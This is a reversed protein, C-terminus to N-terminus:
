KIVFYSKGVNKLAKHTLIIRKIPQNDWKTQFSKYEMGEVSPLDISIDWLNKDYNIAYKKGSVTKLNVMGATKTDVECTTMFIQQLSKAEKLHYVDEIEVQNQAQNLKVTRNWSNVNAEAPYAKAINMKLSNEAGAVETAEFSRGANQVIGNIIPLNHYDSRTFWLEYRQPSFTRATYNGRGADIIVPEGNAYVIFDGVDNHNHSEANHGGHTALYLGQKTRTTVVQIDSIYAGNPQYDNNYKPISNTTLLNEMARMVHRYTFGVEKSFTHNAWLGFKVMTEDNIAKGFRYLMLGDPKSIRPDADAFNVFYRDAIHMKYIYSAMNKILPEDYINIKGNTARASLELIDFVSAGAAFWYSPGEDCGGEDGLGNLYGDTHFLYDKLNAARNKEDKELFLNAMILNSMIWPNWNNVQNKRSAWGYREWNKMSQFLRQNTEFYIRKRILKNIKDLKEGMLYDTLGLLAGTEASFLDVVHNEVDPLGTRSIHAPVGWFSEECIAWVLNFIKETFRDKNEINEALILQALQLRRGFSAAGHKERDGSRVFDMAMTATIEAIPAELAKEGVSIAEKIQSETLIKKWEDATKPYPKFQDKPILNKEIFDLSYKKMLINREKVQAFSVFSILMFFLLKKMFKSNFKLQIPCIKYKM